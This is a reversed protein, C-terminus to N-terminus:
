ERPAKNERELTKVREPEASSPGDRKGTDRQHQRVWDSLTQTSCGIKNAISGLAAWDSTHESRHDFYMREAREKVEPSYKKNKQM